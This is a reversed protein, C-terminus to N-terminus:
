TETLYYLVSLSEIHSQSGCIELSGSKTKFTNHNTWVYKCVIKGDGTINLHKKKTENTKVKTKIEIQKSSRDKKELM